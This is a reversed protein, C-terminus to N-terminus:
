DRAVEEKPMIDCADYFYVKSGTRVRARTGSVALVIGDIFTDRCGRVWVPDGEAVPWKTNRWMM